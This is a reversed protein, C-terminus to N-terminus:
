NSEGRVLRGLLVHAKAHRMRAEAPSPLGTEEALTEWSAGAYDRLLILERFESPLRSLCEEVRHFAELDRPDSNPSTGTAVLDIGDPGSKIKFECPVYDDAKWKVASTDGEGGEIRKLALESLYTLVQVEARLDYGPLDRMAALFARLITDRTEIRDRQLTTLRLSVIKEVRGLYRKLLRHIAEEEGQQARRVLDRWDDSSDM